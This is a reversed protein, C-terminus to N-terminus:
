LSNCSFLNTYHHVSFIQDYIDCWIVDIYTEECRGEEAYM